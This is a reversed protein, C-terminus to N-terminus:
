EILKFEAGISKAIAQGLYIAQTRSTGDRGFSGEHAFSEEGIKINMTWGPTVSGRGEDTPLRVEVIVNQKGM